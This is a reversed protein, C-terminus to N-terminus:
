EEPTTALRAAVAPDAALEASLNRISVFRARLLQEPELFRVNRLSAGTLDAKTLSAVFLNAGNLCAGTLNAGSLNAGTLNAGTLNAGTLYAGTLNAGSLCARLQRQVQHDAQHVQDM